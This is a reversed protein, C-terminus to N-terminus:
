VDAPAMAELRPAVETVMLELSHDWAKANGLYDHSYVMTTGWMCTNERREQMKRAVTEPSGCFWVKEVLDDVTVDGPEVGPLIAGLLGFMKYVPLLYETWAEGVGGEIALKRAEADTDAVIVDCVLHLDSQQVTRGAAAAADRYTEWHNRVANDGAYVSLPLFGERGALAISPSNPSLGTVGIEVDGGWPRLDRMPHSPDDHPFGANWFAGEHYFEEGKWIRRMIDLAEMQMAHNQKLDKFGRLYADAPYAGAGIGLIYRGQTVHSLWSVQIALSAPNHYPLLHAGPALKIRQTERATAAIILEPNPISEWSQTAHEGIWYETFGLRDCTVAQEVAWDFVERPSRTPRMFPTQFMAFKM